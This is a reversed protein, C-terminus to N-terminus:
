VERETCLAYQCVQSPVFFSIVGSKLQSSVIILQWNLSGSILSPWWKAPFMRLSQSKGNRKRQHKRPRLVFLIKAMIKSSTKRKWLTNEGPFVCYLRCCLGNQENFCFCSQKQLTMWWANIDKFNTDLTKWKRNQLNLMSFTSQWYNFDSLNLIGHSTKWPFGGQGSMFLSRLRFNYELKRLLPRHTVAHGGRKM